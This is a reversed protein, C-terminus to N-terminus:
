STYKYIFTDTSLPAIIMTVTAGSLTYDVGADALFQGNLFLNLSNNNPIAPLTFITTVGNGTFTGKTWTGGTGGEIEAQTILAGYKLPPEYNHAYNTM